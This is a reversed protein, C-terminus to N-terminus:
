TGSVLAVGGNTGTQVVLALSSIAVVATNVANGAVGVTIVNGVTANLNQVLTKQGPQCTPFVLTLPVSPNATILSAGAQQTTLNYPTAAVAGLDLEGFTQLTPLSQTATAKFGSREEPIRLSDAGSIMVNRYNPSPNAM